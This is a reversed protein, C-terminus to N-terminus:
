AAEAACVTCVPEGDKETMCAKCYATRCRPCLESAKWSQHRPCMEVKAKTKAPDGAGPAGAAHENGLGPADRPITAGPPVEVALQTAKLNVLAEMVFEFEYADFRILDRNKLAKPTDPDTLRRGNLFTGNASRLDRLYFTGDRFEIVAHQGSVTEHAIVVQNSEARGIHTEATRLLHQGNTSQGSRDYLHAKPLQVGGAGTRRLAILALLAVALIGLSALLWSSWRNSQPVPEAARAAAQLRAAEAEQAERALDAIRGKIQSFTGSIDAAALVRYYAGGTSQAVSQILQFDAEETLAIGSIRIGLRKAEQALDGTLWRSREVDKASNGTDVVGDTMFVIVRDADARGHDRLEYIAREVGAPIDTYKGKYDLRKVSAAVADRFGDADGRTLPLPVSVTADFVVIGLRSDPMLEDAFGSVVKPLLREPDNKKMSGSNDLALAVDLSRAPAGATTPASVPETDGAADQAALSVPVSLLFGLFLMARSYSM